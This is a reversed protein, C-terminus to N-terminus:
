DFGSGLAKSAELAVSDQYRKKDEDELFIPNDGCQCSRVRAFGNNRLAETLSKEDWMWRHRSNGFLRRLPSPREEEGLGSWRMLRSAADDSAHDLYTETLRRLDPVIIRLTGEDALLDSMNRLAKLAGEYTLQELTHCCFIAKCTASSISLGKLTDGYSVNRPFPRSVLQRLIPVSGLLVTPSADINRWMAPANRGCGMNLLIGKSPLNFRLM